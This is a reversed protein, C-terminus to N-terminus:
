GARNLHRYLKGNFYHMSQDLDFHESSVLSGNRKYEVIAENVTM